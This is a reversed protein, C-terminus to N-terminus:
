AIYWDITSAYRVHEAGDYEDIKFLTGPKVWEIVLDDGNSWGEEAWEEYLFFRGNVVRVTREPDEPTLGHVTATGKILALVAVQVNDPRAGYLWTTYGGGYGPSYVVAVEGKSNYLKGNRIKYKEGDFEFRSNDPMPLDQRVALEGM